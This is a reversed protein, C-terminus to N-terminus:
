GLRIDSAATDEFAPAVDNPSGLIYLKILDNNCWLYSGFFIISEMREIKRGWKCKPFETPLAFIDVHYTGM